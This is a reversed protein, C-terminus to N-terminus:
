TEGEGKREWSEWIFPYNWRERHTRSLRERIGRRRPRAGGVFDHFQVQLFRVRHLLGEDLMNELLEYEAGEINIKMLAIEGGLEGFVEKAARLRITQTQDRAPNRLISSSESALAMEATRTSGALGLAHLTVRPDGQFRRRIEEAFSFVPEFVHVRSGHRQVMAGAFDGRYGGVDLVLSDAGLPYDVRLREDGQAGTWRHLVHVLPLKELLFQELSLRNDPDEVPEYADPNVDRMVEAGPEIVSYNGVTLNPHVRAGAGIRVRNGIRAHAVTAAAGVSTHAGIRSGDVCTNKGLTVHEDFYSGTITCSADVALTPFRERLRSLQDPKLSMFKDIPLLGSALGASRTTSHGRM